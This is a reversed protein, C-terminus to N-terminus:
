KNAEQEKKTTEKETKYTLVSEKSVVWDRGMKQGEIRGRRLLQGVAQISIGLISAAESTTIIQNM